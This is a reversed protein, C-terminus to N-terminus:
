VRSLLALAQARRAPGPSPAGGVAARAGCGNGHSVSRLVRPGRTPARGARRAPPGALGSGVLSAPVTAGPGTTVPALPSAGGPLSDGARPSSARSPRDATPVPPRAGRSAGRGEGAGRGGDQVAARGEGRDKKTVRYRTTKNIPSLHPSARLARPRVPSSGPRVGAQELSLGGARGARLPSRSPLRGGGQDRHARHGGPSFM